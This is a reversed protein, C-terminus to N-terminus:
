ATKELRELNDQNEDGLREFADAAEMLFEVKVSAEAYFQGLAKELHRAMETVEEPSSPLPSTVPNHDGSELGSIPELIMETTNERRIRELLAIRKNAREHLAGFIKTSDSSGAQAAERYFSSAKGELELAHKLVAGFTGLELQLAEV